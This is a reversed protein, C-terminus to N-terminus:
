RASTRASCKQAPASVITSGRESDARLQSRPPSRRRDAHPHRVVREGKRHQRAGPRERDRARVAAPRRCAVHSSSRAVNPAATSTYRHAGSGSPPEAEVTTSSAVDRPHQTATGDGLPGHERQAARARRLDSPPPGTYVRPGMACTSTTQVPFTQRDGIASPEQAARESRLQARVGRLDSRRPGHPPRTGGGLETAAAASRPTSMEPWRARSSSGAPDCARRQDQPHGDLVRVGDDGLDGLGRERVKVSFSSTRRTSDSGSTWSAVGFRSDSRTAAASRSRARPNAPSGRSSPIMSGRSTGRPKGPRRWRARRITSSAPRRRRGPRPVPRSHCTGSRQPDRHPAIVGPIGELDRQLREEGFASM